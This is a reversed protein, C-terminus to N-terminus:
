PRKDLIQRIRELQWVAAFIGINLLALLITEMLMLEM